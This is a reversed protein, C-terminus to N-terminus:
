MENRRIPDVVNKCAFDHFNRYEDECGDDYNDADELEDCEAATLQDKYKLCKLREQIGSDQSALIRQCYSHDSWCNSNDPKIIYKGDPKIIYPKVNPNSNDNTLFIIGIILLVLVIGIIYLNSM